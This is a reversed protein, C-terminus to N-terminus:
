PQLDEPLILYLIQAMGTLMFAMGKGKMASPITIQGASVANEAINQM